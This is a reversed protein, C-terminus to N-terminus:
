SFQNLEEKMRPISRCFLGGHCWGQCGGLGGGGMVEGGECVM